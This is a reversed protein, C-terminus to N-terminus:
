WLLRFLFGRKFDEGVVEGLEAVFDCGDAFGVMTVCLPVVVPM